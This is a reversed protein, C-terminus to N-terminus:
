TEKVQGKGPLLSVEGDTMLIPANKSKWYMELADEIVKTRNHGTVHCLSRILVAYTSIDVWIDLRYQKKRRKQRSLKQRQSPSLVEKDKCPDSHDIATSSTPM